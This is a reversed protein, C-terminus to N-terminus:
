GTGQNVIRWRGAADQGLTYNWTNPGDPMSGDGGSITVTTTFLLDGKLALFLRPPTYATVSGCLGKSGGETLAKVTECDGAALAQLYAELVQQPSANDPPLPVRASCAAISSALVAAALVAIALRRSAAMHISSM